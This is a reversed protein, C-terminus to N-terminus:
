VKQTNYTIDISNDVPIHYVAVDSKTLFDSGSGKAANYQERYYVTTIGSQHILKACEICPEHTCFLTADKSSDNSQAVKAIANTEAHLVEPKTFLITTGIDHQEKITECENDWGSPMGNYGISIIRNDKVIIAGVQARKATSLEAFRQAVDLFAKVFKEKM